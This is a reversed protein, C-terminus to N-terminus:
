TDIVLSDVCIKCTLVATRVVFFGSTAPYTPVAKGSQHRLARAHWRWLDTRHRGCSAPECNRTPPITEAPAPARRGAFILPRTHQRSAPFGRCLRVSPQDADADTLSSATVPAAPCSM